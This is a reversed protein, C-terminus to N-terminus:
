RRRSRRGPRPRPPAARAVRLDGVGGHDAAVPGPTAAPPSRPPRARAVAGLAVGSSSRRWQASDSAPKLTGFRTSSAAPAAACGRPCASRAPAASPREALWGGGCSFRRCRRRCPRRGRALEVALGDGDEAVAGLAVGVGEVELVGPDVDDDAQAGSEELRALASAARGRPARCRRRRWGRRCRSPGAARRSAPALDPALLDGVPDGGAVQQEEGVAERDVEALDVRGGADVDAHDGGLARAVQDAALVLFAVADGAQHRDVLVGGAVGVVQDEGVGGADAAAAGAIM